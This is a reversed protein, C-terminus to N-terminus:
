SQEPNPEPNPQPNPQPNAEREARAYLVLSRPSASCPAASVALQDRARLRGHVLWGKELGDAMEDAMETPAEVDIAGNPERQGPRDPGEVVYSASSGAPSGAAAESAAGDPWASSHAHKPAAPRAGAAGDLVIPPGYKAELGMVMREILSVETCREPHGGCGVPGNPLAVCARVHRCASPLELAAEFIPPASALRPSASAAPNVLSTSTSTGVAGVTSSSSSSAADRPWSARDFRRLLLVTSTDTCRVYLMPSFLEARLPWTVRGVSVEDASDAFSLEPAAHVLLAEDVGSLNHLGGSAEYNFAELEGSWSPTSVGDLTGCGLTGPYHAHAKLTTPLDVADFHASWEREGQVITDKGAFAVVTGDPDTAYLADAGAAATIVFSSPKTQRLSPSSTLSTPTSSYDQTTSPTCLAQIAGDHRSPEPAGDALVTM